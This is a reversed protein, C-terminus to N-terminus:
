RVDDEDHGDDYNGDDDDDDGNIYNYSDGLDVDGSAFRVLCHNM